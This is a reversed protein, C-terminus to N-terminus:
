LKCSVGAVGAIGNFIYNGDMPIYQGTIMVAEQSAVGICQVLAKLQEIAHTMTETKLLALQYKQQM